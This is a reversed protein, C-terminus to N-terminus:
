WLDAMGCQEIADWIYVSLQNCPGQLHKLIGGSDLMRTTLDQFNSFTGLSIISDVPECQRWSPFSM